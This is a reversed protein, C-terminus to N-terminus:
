YGQTYLYGQTNSKQTSGEISEDTEKYFTYHVQKEGMWGNHLFSVVSCAILTRKDICTTNKPNVILISSYVGDLVM